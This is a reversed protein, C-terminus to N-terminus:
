CTLIKGIRTSPWTLPVAAALALGFLGIAFLRSSARLSLEKVVYLALILAASELFLLVDGSGM